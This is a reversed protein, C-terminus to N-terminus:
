HNNETTGRYVYQGLTGNLNMFKVTAAMYELFDVSLAFYLSWFVLIEIQNLM